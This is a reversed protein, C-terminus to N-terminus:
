KKFKVFVKDLLTEDALGPECYKYDIWTKGTSRKEMQNLIKTLMMASNSEDLWTLRLWVDTTWVQL